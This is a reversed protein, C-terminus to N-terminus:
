LSICNYKVVEPMSRSLTLEYSIKKKEKKIKKKDNLDTHMNRFTHNTQTSNYIVSVWRYAAQEHKIDYQM